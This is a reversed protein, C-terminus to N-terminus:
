SELVIWGPYIPKIKETDTNLWKDPQIVIKNPCRSSLLAGWSGFTSNSIIFHHCKSMLFMDYAGHDTDNINVFTYNNNPPLMSKAKTPDTIFIYYQISINM